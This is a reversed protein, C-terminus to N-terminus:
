TCPETLEWEKVSFTGQTTFSNTDKAYQHKKSSFMAMDHLPLHPQFMEADRKFPEQMNHENVRSWSTLFVM